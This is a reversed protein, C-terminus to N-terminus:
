AVENWSGPQSSYDGSDLPNKGLFVMSEFGLLMRAESLWYYKM